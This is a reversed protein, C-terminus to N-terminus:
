RSPKVVFPPMQPDYVDLASVRLLDGFSLVPVVGIGLPGRVACSDGKHGVPGAFSVVVAVVSVDPRNGRVATREGFNGIMEELVLTRSPRRVAFLNEKSALGSAMLEGLQVHRIRGPTHGR